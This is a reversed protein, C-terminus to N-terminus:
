CIDLKLAMNGSYGHKDLLNVCESAVAICNQIQHDRVLGFQNPSVIQSAIM